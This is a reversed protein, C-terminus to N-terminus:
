ARPRSGADSGSEASPVVRFDLEGVPALPTSRVSDIHAIAPAVTRLETVFRAIADAGGEIEIDVGDADNRVFGSLSLRAAFRCIAPRFGVGQVVGSVRVARRLRPVADAISAM